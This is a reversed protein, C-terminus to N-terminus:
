GQAERLQPERRERLPAEPCMFCLWPTIFPRSSNCLLRRVPPSIIVSIDYSAVIQLGMGTSGSSTILSANSVNRAQLAVEMSSAPAELLAALTSRVGEKLAAQMCLLIDALRCPTCM